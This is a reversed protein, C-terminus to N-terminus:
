IFSKVSMKEANDKIGYEYVLIIEIMLIMSHQRWYYHYSALQTKIGKKEAVVDQNVWGCVLFGLLISKSVFTHM